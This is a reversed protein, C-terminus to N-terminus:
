GGAEVGEEERELAAFATHARSRPLFQMWLAIYTIQFISHMSPVIHKVQLLLRLNAKILTRHTLNQLDLPRKLRHSPPLLPILPIPTRSSKHSLHTPPQICPPPPPFTLHHTTSTISCPKEIRRLSRSRSVHSPSSFEITRAIGIPILVVPVTKILPASFLCCKMDENMRM